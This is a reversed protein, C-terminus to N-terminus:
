EMHLQFVETQKENQLFAIDVYNAIKTNQLYKCLEQSTTVPRGDADGQLTITIYPYAFTAYLQSDSYSFLSINYVDKKSTYKLGCFTIAPFSCHYTNTKNYDKGWGDKNWGYTFNGCRPM